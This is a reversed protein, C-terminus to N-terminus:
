KPIRGYDYCLIENNTTIGCNVMVNDREYIVIDHYLDYFDLVEIFKEKEKHTSPKPHKKFKKKEMIVYDAYENIKGFFLVPVFYKRHHPLFSKWKRYEMLSQQENSFDIKIIYKDNYYVDRTFDGCRQGRKRHLREGDLYVHSKNVFKLDM